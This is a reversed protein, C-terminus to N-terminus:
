DETEPEEGEDDSGGSGSNDDDSEDEVEDDGGGPGSNDDDAEDDGGGPGSNDDDAEDDGGGPGSNDDDIEDDGGGPGSNDDDIEDDGGGPGSNDDDTQDDGAQADDDDEAEPDDDPDVEDAPDEVEAPDDAEEVEGDDADPLDVGVAGAAGSVVDQLPDPLAQAYALGGMLTFVAVLPAMVKALLLKRMPTSRRMPLRSAQSAPGHAKSVPRAVPDGNDALLRSAESMMAMVHADEVGPSPTEIAQLDDVFVALEPVQERADASGELSLELENGEDHRNM